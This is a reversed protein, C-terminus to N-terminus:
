LALNADNSSGLYRIRCSFDSRTEIKSVFSCGNIGYDSFLAKEYLLKNQQFIAEEISRGPIGVACYNM